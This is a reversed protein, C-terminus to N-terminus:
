DKNQITKLFWNLRVFPQGTIVTAWRILNQAGLFVLSTSFQKTSRCHTLFFERFWLLSLRTDILTRLLGTRKSRSSAPLLKPSPWKVHSYLITTDESIKFGVFCTKWGPKSDYVMQCTISYNNKFFLFDGLRSIM